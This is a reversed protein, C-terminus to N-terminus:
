SNLRTSKRDRQLPAGNVKSHLQKAVCLHSSRQEREPYLAAGMTGPPEIDACARSPSDAKARQAPLDYVVRRVWPLLANGQSAKVVPIPVYKHKLEGVSFPRRLEVTVSLEDHVHNLGDGFVLPPFDPLILVVPVSRNLLDHRACVTVSLVDEDLAAM